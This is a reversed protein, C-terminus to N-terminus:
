VHRRPNSQIWGIAHVNTDHANSIWITEASAQAWPSGHQKQAYGVVEVVSHANLGASEWHCNWDGLRRLKSDLLDGSAVYGLAWPRLKLTDRRNERLSCCCTSCCRLWSDIGIRSRSFTLKPLPMDYRTLDM